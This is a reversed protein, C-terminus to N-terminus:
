LNNEIVSILNNKAVSKAEENSWGTGTANKSFYKQINGDEITIIRFDIKYEATVMDNRSKNERLSFSVKGLCLFDSYKILELKRIMDLNGNYLHNFIGDAIFKTSFFSTTSNYGKSSFVKSIDQNIDPEIDNNNDIITIIIEKTNATNKISNNIIYNVYTEKKIEKNQSNNKIETSLQNPVQSINKKIENGIVMSDNGNDIYEFLEKVIESTIPRLDVNFQPHKGSQSFFELKENPYKYYYILPRGDPSFFRFNRNPIVRSVENIKKNEIIKVIEPTVPKVETGYIPHVKYSCDVYEYGDLTAAYCKQVEGIKNFNNDQTFIWMMSCFLIFLAGLGLLANNRDQSKILPSPSIAKWFWKLGYILVLLSFIIAIIRILWINLGINNALYQFIIDYTGKILYFNFLTIIVALAFLIIVVWRIVKLYKEIKIEM